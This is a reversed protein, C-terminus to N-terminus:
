LCVIVFTVRWDLNLLTGPKNGLILYSFHNLLSTNKLTKLKGGIKTINNSLNNVSPCFRKKIQAEFNYSKLLYISVYKWVKKKKEPWCKAFIAIFTIWCMRLIWSGFREVLVDFTMKLSYRFLCGLPTLFEWFLYVTNGWITEASVIRKQIQFELPWLVYPWLDCYM